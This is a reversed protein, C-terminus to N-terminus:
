LYRRSRIQKASPLLVREFRDTITRMDFTKTAYARGNDGLRHRLDPSAYLRAAADLFGADDDPDLVIGADARVVTKAALNEAPAALLIPRGACLYSQVKSPVAFTGADTEITAVLVDATALVNAFDTASQLPLLKLAAEPHAANAAELQQMGLGQSVAVVADSPYRRALELLVMPNHKRGLTGSYLFTFKDHLGHARSWANDKPGLPIDDLAGWNEIVTMDPYTGTIAHVVPVFDETIVVMADSDRFQCRDLWNYYAGIVNGAFGLRKTFLKTIAISYVDQLWYVVRINAAKCTKIIRGQSDPPANGTLVVDPKIEHIIEAMRKGYRIDQFRRKVLASQDILPGLKIGIVRLSPPDDSREFLGKPGHNDAFYVHTVDHGRMALTRSLHIQFPHGSYDHILIRAM